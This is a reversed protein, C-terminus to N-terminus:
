KQLLSLLNGIIDMSCRHLPDVSTAWAGILERQASGINMALKGECLGITYDINECVSGDYTYM